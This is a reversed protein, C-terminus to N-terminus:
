AVSGLATGPADVENGWSEWGPRGRRAFIEAYPGKSRAEIRQYSAVPKRSHVIRGGEREHPAAIVSGIDRRPQYVLPSMGEGRVAFLLLEHQGRAYQGIGARLDAEDLNDLDATAGTKIWPFTRKFDFGLREILWLAAPLYNDTSWTYLHAADSYPRWLPCALVTRLIEPVERAGPKDLLQYHRDAGRKVQGGGREPWPPDMMVTRFRPEESPFLVGSM